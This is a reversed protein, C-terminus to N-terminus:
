ILRYLDLVRRIHPPFNSSLPFNDGREGELSFGKKDQDQKYLIKVYDMTVLQLDYPIDTSEYGARYDVSVGSAYPSFAVIGGISMNPYMNNGGITDKTIEGSNRSFTYENKSNHSDSITSSTATEDFHLLMVTDNDPRFRKIPPIFEQTYKANTSIRFEDIHGKFSSGLHMNSTFTLNAETYSTNAINNGNYFLYLLDNDTDRTVAVHAWKRKTFQQAEVSTNAGLVTTGIGSVNSTFSVGYLNSLSLEMYNNADTNISFFVNDQLTDEDVKIFTEITFSGDELYLHTPVSSTVAVDSVNLALSSTGFKKIRTDIHADNNLVFTVSNNKQIVPLGTTTADNLIKYESGTFESVQYVNNLPIRSVFVSAKGGDFTEVYNNALVEQGIYHEIVGTAYNIINSLKADYTNSSITLYDKVQALTVYTYKGLNEEFRNM